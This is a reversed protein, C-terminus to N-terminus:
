FLSGSLGTAKLSGAVALVLWSMVSLYQLGGISGFRGESGLTVYNKGWVHRSIIWPVALAAAPLPFYVGACLHLAILSPLGEVLNGHVRQANNLAWWDRYPLSDGYRGHGMDPYGRDSFKPVVAEGEFAAAHQEKLKLAASSSAWEKGFARARAPNVFIM